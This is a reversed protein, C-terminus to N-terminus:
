EALLYGFVEATLRALSEAPRTFAEHRPVRDTLAFLASIGAPALIDATMDEGRSGCLVITPIGHAHAFSAIHGAVKGHLSQSDFRGEGTVALAAKRIAADTGTLAAISAAGQRKYM